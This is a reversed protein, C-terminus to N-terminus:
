EGIAGCSARQYREPQTLYGKWISRICFPETGEIVGSAAQTKELACEKNQKVKKKKGTEGGDRRM